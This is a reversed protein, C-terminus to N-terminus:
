NFYNLFFTKLSQCYVAILKRHYTHLNKAFCLLESLFNFV